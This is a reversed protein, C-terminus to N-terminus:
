QAFLFDTFIKNRVQARKLLSTYSIIEYYLSGEPRHKKNYLPSFPKYLYDASPSYQFAPDSSRIDEEDIKEGVLYGYFSQLNLCPNSYNLLMTAYTTIQHLYTSIDVDPAKFEIIICKGEQPYLLIDPRRTARNINKRRLYAEAEEITEQTILQTDNFKCERLPLDSTGAYYICEENFLWLSSAASNTSKRKFFLDHLMNEHIRSHQMVCSATGNLIDEYLNLIIQRKSVYKSLNTRNQLSTSQTISAALDELQETYNASRPDLNAISNLKSKLDSDFAANLKSEAKYFANLIREDTADCSIKNRVASIVREDILFLKKLEEIRQDREEVGNQLETHMKQMCLQTKTTFNESTIIKEEFLLIPDMKSIEKTTLFHVNGRNDTDNKDIYDGSIFFQFRYGSFNERKKFLVPEIEQIAAGNSVLYIKNESLQDSSIKFSKIEFTAVDKLTEISGHSIIKSYNIKVIESKEPHLIDSQIIKVPNGQIGNCYKTITITPLTDSHSLFLPLYNSLLKKKVDLATLNCFQEEDKVELPCSFEVRTGTAKGSTPTPLSLDKLIANKELFDPAKSLLLHRSGLTGDTQLFTSQFDTQEFFHLFQVRGTGKNGSGKRNDRLSILRKYGDETLGEGNDEILIHSLANVTSKSAADTHTTIYIAIKIIGQALNDAPIAEWANMFAERIPTFFDKKDKKISELERPYYIGVGEIYKEAMARKM